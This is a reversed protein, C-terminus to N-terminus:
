GVLVEDNLRELEARLAEQYARRALFLRDEAEMLKMRAELLPDGNLEPAPTEHPPEKVQGPSEGSVMGAGSDRKERHAAHAASAREAAEFRAVEIHEACLGATPGAKPGNESVSQTCDEFRCTMRQGVSLEWPIGDPWLVYSLLLAGDVSDKGRSAQSIIESAAKIRQEISADELSAM